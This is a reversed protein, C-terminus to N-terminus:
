EADDAIEEAGPEARYEVDASRLIVSPGLVFDAFADLIRDENIERVVDFPDLRIEGFSAVEAFAAVVGYPLFKSQHIGALMEDQGVASEGPPRLVQAAVRVLGYYGGLSPVVVVAGLM